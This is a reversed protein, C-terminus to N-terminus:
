LRFHLKEHTPELLEYKVYKNINIHRSYKENWLIIGSTLGDVMTFTSIYTIYVCIVVVVVIPINIKDLM